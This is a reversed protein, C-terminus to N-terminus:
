GDVGRAGASNSDAKEGRPMTDNVLRRDAGYRLLVLSYPALAVFGESVRHLERHATDVVEAWIGGGEVDPLTFRVEAEGGNVLLLLTEGKIPRGRDDTEDTAEGYILMGLAHSDGHHWDGDTMEQGDSRIWCLDKPGGKTTPEGTFFHRRRLVPHTARLSFCKRTFGLLSRKREDLDWHMWTLENDQAYANNNGQQTRAIEDGHSLMPVGQSFALTSIFDRMVRYRMELVEPDQTDGEVSWNRSVNDNTGDRNQEGNADNHKQEYSVLDNLTFGDHATIFNISAYAGRGSPQYIDSSGALRSALDPVQGPDGKWFHRVTDRYRGNWEAWRIPFNGVQYGGPGVDWPEAILKINALTPDQHIIDFFASLRDVEHLERALVPALDFRFGDVHMDTVWYRLSDM